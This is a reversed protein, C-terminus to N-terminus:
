DVLQKHLQKDDADQNPTGAKAPSAGSSAHLLSSEAAPGGSPPVGFAASKKADGNEEGILEKRLAPTLPRNDQPPNLIYWILNRFDADSMQELGEPMVSLESVRIKPKGNEVAIDSRAIIEEKPGTALLRVRNDTNEVMRGSVTRGDKTEVEVNEYGAGIIQNPDIINALLADLTSRGVGTLDPGVDAGEGHLKHCVFCTKKAVEYGSKLDPKGTLVIKKKAAIIRAKDADADRVKGFIAATRKAVLGPSDQARSLTRVASASVDDPAVSKSELASLLAEQWPRRTALVDAAARRTVPSYSKWRDLIAQAPNGEAGGIEGLARLAEVYLRQQSEVAGEGARGAGEGGSPSLSPTLPNTFMKLLEARAVDSKAERAAQIGQLRDAESVSANNVSKILALTAGTDGWLVGLRRAKDGLAPMSYFRELVPGVSDTPPSGKIKFGELLGDLAVSALAPKGALSGLFKVALNLQSSRLDPKTQDCIRRMVRRLCYASVSNDNAALLPFFPQADQAVRPEMAMWVIHPYYFDGEVSPRSLLEQYLTTLDKDSALTPIEETEAPPVPTTVTLSGSVLRRVAAAVEARVTPDKDSALIRLKPIGTEMRHNGICRAVWARQAPDSVETLDVPTLGRQSGLWQLSREGAVTLEKPLGSNIKEMELGDSDWCRKALLRVAQRRQWSNPHDVLRALRETSEKSLDMGKEPRSAVAKGPQNGVWVVRWIRGHERDVGEPDANANQYCPYKDYWDAIWLAGDPGTQTSVPRFWPDKSVLFNGAGVAFDGKSTGLLKSEKEAKYTSGVPTLRDCNIASQHINGLFVLGRWEAPYQNGQYITIGSHAARYHRWDVIAPLGRSPLDGVYGYPNAWTGGQRNYQGGPAMHFLHQIVCASVFADGRENWDVGWPNSTGDAFVEFKKTRPHFRALAANMVVGDDE